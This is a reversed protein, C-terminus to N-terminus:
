QKYNYKFEKVIERKVDKVKELKDTSDYEYYTIIGSPDTMSRMGIYPDYTYTTVLYNSLSTNNRFINLANLFDTEEQKRPKLADLDSAAVINNILTADIDSWKAGEIKAIPETSNYGWIITVPTGDRTTYQQLNGLSDYKDYTMEVIGFNVDPLTISPHHAVNKEENYILTKRPLTTYFDNSYNFEYLTQIRKLFKNNKYQSVVSPIGFISKSFLNVLFAYPKVFAVPHNPSAHLLDGTYLYTTKMSTNDPYIYEEKSLNFHRQGEYFYNHTTALTKGGLYNKTITSKLLYPYVYEKQYHVWSAFQQVRSIYSNELLINTSLSSYKNETEEIIQDDKFLQVKLLKGRQYDNYNYKVPFNKILTLPKIDDTLVLTNREILSDPNTSYDSFFYKKQLINNKLEAVESYSIPSSSLSNESINNATETLSVSRGGGQNKYDVYYMYRLVQSSIGSSEASGSGYNRLYKFDRTITNTGDFDEIKNIRAGGVRGLSNKLYPLFNSSFDRDIKRSYSHPEYYFTTSGGTPYLVNKLLGTRVLNPNSDRTTGTIEYDGTDRNFSYTPILFNNDDNKGNWYGWFDIGLTTEKPLTEKNYYDFLYLKEDPFKLSQLFFRDKNRYYDFSFTQQGAIIISSIKLSKYGNDNSQFNNYNFSILVKGDLVIRKPLVNKTLTYQFYPAQYSFGSGDGWVHYGGISTNINYNFRSNSQNVYKNYSFLSEVFDFSSQQPAPPPISTCFNGFNPSEFSTSNDSYPHYDIELKHNDSYEVKYLYWGTISFIGKGDPLLTAPQNSNGMQYSVELNNHHGGFYYKNGKGDIITIESFSPTCGYNHQNSLNSIDIKLNMNQSVVVPIGDNGIYFYGTNGLFNFNFKDPTLEYQYGSISMHDKNFSSSYSGNYIDSNLKPNLRVGVLFGKSGLTSESSNSDDAVGNISRSILGGFNLSWDHGVYNSKKTPIFGSSNYDLSMKFDGVSSIRKEFIPINFDLGGANLNVPINGFREMEYSQPSKINLAQGNFINYILIFIAIYKRM